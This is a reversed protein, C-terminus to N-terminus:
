RAPYKIWEIATMPIRYITGDVNLRIWYSDASARLTGQMTTGSRFHVIVFDNVM